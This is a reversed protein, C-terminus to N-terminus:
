LFVWRDKHARRVVEVEPVHAVPQRAVQTALEVRDLATIGKDLHVLASVKERFAVVVNETRRQAVAIRGDRPDRFLGPRVALDTQDSTGRRRFPLQGDGRLAIGRQSGDDRLTKAGPDTADRRVEFLSVPIAAAGHLHEEDGPDGALLVM